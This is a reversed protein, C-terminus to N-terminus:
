YCVSFLRINILYVMVKNYIKKLLINGKQDNHGIYEFHKNHSLGGDLYQIKLDEQWSIFNFSLQDRFSGENIENWWLDMCNNILQNQHNRVIVAGHILGNNEPYGLQKYRNVQNCIVTKDDIGLFSCVDAERYLCSRVQHRYFYIGRYENCLDVFFDLNSKIKYAGDVWISAKSNPFILHPFLKFIKATLRPTKYSASSPIIKWTDSVLSLDDTFCYYEMAENKEIIENLIDKGGYIATYVVIKNVRDNKFTDIFSSVYNDM